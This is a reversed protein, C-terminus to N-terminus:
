YAASMVLLKVMHKVDWGGDRFEIALWDLLEPHVPWEGQAGLDEVLSSIGTGFLQKWLRNVFAGAPLPTEKSPLCKGPDLRTLRGGKAAAPQPLFHPVAPEVVAGSRDQWNGRPLIRTVPPTAAKTIMTYTQGDRCERLPVYLTKAEGWATADRGTGLLYLEALEKVQSPTRDGPKALIAERQAEDLSPRGAPDFGFPSVSLRICGAWDTKVV